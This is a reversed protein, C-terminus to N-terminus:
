FDWESRAVGTGSIVLTILVRFFGHLILYDEFWPRDCPRAVPRLIGLGHALLRDFSGENVFETVPLGM